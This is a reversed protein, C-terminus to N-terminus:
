HSEGVGTGVVGDLDVKALFLDKIDLYQGAMEKKKKKEKENRQRSLVDRGVVLGVDDFADNVGGDTVCGALGAGILQVELKHPAAGENGRDGRGVKDEVLNFTRRTVLEDELAVALVAVVIGLLDHAPEDGM